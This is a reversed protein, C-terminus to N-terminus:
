FKAKKKQLTKKLRCASTRINILKKINGKVLWFWKNKFEFREAM